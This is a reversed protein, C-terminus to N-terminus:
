VARRLLLRIGQGAQKEEAVLDFGQNELSSRAAHYAYRQVLQQQFDKSQIGKIGWWDAVIEYADGAKRFGIDYGKNGSAVKIAVTTRKGWFDRIDMPGREWEYGMSELAQILYEEEIMQTKIRSFHSM